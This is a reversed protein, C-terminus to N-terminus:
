TLSINLETTFFLIAILLVFMHKKQLFFQSSTSKRGVFSESTGHDFRSSEPSVLKNQICVFFPCKSGCIARAIELWLYKTLTYLHLFDRVVSWVSSRGVLHKGREMSGAKPWDWAADFNDHSPLHICGMQGFLGWTSGLDDLLLEYISTVMIKSFRMKFATSCWMAEM